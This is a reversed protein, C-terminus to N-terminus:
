GPADTPMIAIHYSCRHPSHLTETHLALLYLPLGATHWQRTVAGDM